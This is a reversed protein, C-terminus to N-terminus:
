VGRYEAVDFTINTPTGAAAFTVIAYRGGTPTLSATVLTDDACAGDGTGSTIVEGSSPNTTRPDFSLALEDPGAMTLTMSDLQAIVSVKVTTLGAIPILCVYDGDVTITAGKLPKNLLAEATAPVEVIILDAQAGISAYDYARERNHLVALNTTGAM